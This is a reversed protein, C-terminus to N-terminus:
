ASASGSAGGLRAALTAVLQNRLATPFTGPTAFTFLTQEYAGQVLLTVGLEAPTSGGSGDPIAVLVNAGTTFVGLTTPLQQASTTVPTTPTAGSALRGLAAAFCAPFKKSRLQALDDSVQSSSAYRQTTTGVEYFSGHAVLGIPSSPLQLAPKVGGHGFVRDTADTTGMCAEYKAVIAKSAAKDDATPPSSGANIGMLGALPASNTSDTSWGSPLDVVILNRAETAAREAGSMTTPTATSGSSAFVLTLVLAIALLVAGSGGVLRGLRRKPGMGRPARGDFGALLAELEEASGGQLRAGDFVLRLHAGSVWTGLVLHLSRRELTSGGMAQHPIQWAAVPSGGSLSLGVEDIILDYGGGEPLPSRGGELTVGSAAFRLPASM